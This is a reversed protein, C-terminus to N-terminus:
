QGMMLPGTIARSSRMEISTSFVVVLQIKQGRKVVYSYYSSRKKAAFSRPRRLGIAAVHTQHRVVVLQM